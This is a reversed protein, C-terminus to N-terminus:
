AFMGVCPKAPALPKWRGSPLIEAHRGRSWRSWVRGDETVGYGPYGPLEQIIM